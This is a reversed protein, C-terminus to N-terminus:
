QPNNLNGLDCEYIPLSLLKSDQLSSSSKESKKERASKKHQLASNEATDSGKKGGREVKKEEDWWWRWRYWSFHSRCHALTHIHFSQWRMKDRKGGSRVTTALSINDSIVKYTSGRKADYLPLKWTKSHIKFSNISEARHPTSSNLWGLSSQSEVSIERVAVSPRYEVGM